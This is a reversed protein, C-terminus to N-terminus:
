FIDTSIFHRTESVIIEKRKLLVTSYGDSINTLDTM